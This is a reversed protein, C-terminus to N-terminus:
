SEKFQKAYKSHLQQWGGFQMADPGVIRGRPEGDLYSDLVDFCLHWGAAGMAIFRRDINTWLTLKTGGNHPELSWRMDFGGWNYEVTHPPDAKTVTTQTVHLMPAGVTTLQVANGEKGLDGNADFPAWERIQDPDTIANWVKAPSHKLTREVVLAWNDGRKDIHAETVTSPTYQDRATM